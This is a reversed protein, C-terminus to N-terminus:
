RSLTEISTFGESQTDGVENGLRPVVNVAAKGASQGLDSSTAWLGIAPELTEHSILVRM